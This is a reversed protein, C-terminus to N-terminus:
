FCVTPVLPSGLRPRLARPSCVRNGGRERTELAGKKKRHQYPLRPFRETQKPAAPQALARPGATSQSPRLHGKQQGWRPEQTTPSHDPRGKWGKLNLPLFPIRSPVQKHVLQYPKPLCWTSHIPTQGRQITKYIGKLKKGDFICRAEFSQGSYFFYEKRRTRKTKMKM